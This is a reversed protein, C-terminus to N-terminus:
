AAPEPTPPAAARDHGVRPLWALWRPLYWNWEALLKMSAPLLVGRIITADLFIAVALGFGAQKLDLQRLTAFIAFVAVMVLSASTVTGATSRIARAVAEETPLGGDVLEKVRSLIFVHYDMSLGFLLVFLFLPLWAAIGGNSEFGLAGEAWSHQFVLVLIGYSAGVSLLNLVIAKIPIVISRFTALLLIFALGLVFVFVIPLRAAMLSNFDKNAATEGTVAVSVGPVAGVTSPVVDNRLTELAAYATETRSDASAIPIDVRAITRSPNVAVHVPETMVGTALARRRLRALAQRVPAADVDKATVVVVAPTTTGPFADQVRDYTKVVPISRPLDRGSLLKTELGFAPVALAVLVATAAIMSLLPRRLTRELVAGWLRSEAGDSRRRRGLLPIRGKEVRDGLRSMLAPLVSLSGAMAVAVVVITGIAISQFEKTGALLMGALAVIVTAGSILVAEGSTAATRLLAARTDRGAAREERERKLYFLAYDVGVALGVLLIVSQTASSAPIAHSIVASLGLSGLVASIGLLVPLGAAVLAGFAILLVILTAPIALLEARVFDEDLTEVAAREFSASGVEGIFFGAYRRQLDAVAALIPQVRDKAHAPDGGIEFQVLTSRRDVSIQGRADADLPSRVNEVHPLARLRRAVDGIARRFEPATVTLRESEILVVESVPEEFGADALTRQARGAEGGVADAEDLMTKGVVNGLAFAVVVFVLWGCVATKWHSASWRGMRAALNNPPKTESM